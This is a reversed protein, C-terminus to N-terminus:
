EEIRIERDGEFLTQKLEGLVQVQAQMSAVIGSVLRFEAPTTYGPRHISLIFEEFEQKTTLSLLSRSLEKVQLDLRDVDHKQIGASGKPGSQTAM